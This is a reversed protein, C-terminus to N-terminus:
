PCNIKSKLIAATIYRTQPIPSHLRYSSVFVLRQFPVKELIISCGFVIHGEGRMFTGWRLYM